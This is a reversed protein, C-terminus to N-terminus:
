EQFKIYIPYIICLLFKSTLHYFNNLVIFIDFFIKYINYIFLYIFIYKKEKYMFIKIHKMWYIDYFRFYFDDIERGSIDM